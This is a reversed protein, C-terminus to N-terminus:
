ASRSPKYAAAATGPLHLQEHEPVVRGAALFRTLDTRSYRVTQGLKFYVPGRGLYRWQQLTRRPVSLIAAAEVEDVLQGGVTHTNPATTM